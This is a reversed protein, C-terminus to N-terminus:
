ESDRKGIDDIIKLAIRLGCNQFMADHDYDDSNRPIIEKEIEAKVDDLPIGNQIGDILGQPAECLSSYIKGQKLDEYTAKPIEIILKVTESM